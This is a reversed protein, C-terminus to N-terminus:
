LKSLQKEISKRVTPNSLKRRMPSTNGAELMRQFVVDPSLWDSKTLNLSDSKEYFTQRSVGFAKSIDTIFPPHGRM